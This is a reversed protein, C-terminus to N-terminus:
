DIVKCDFKFRTKIKGTDLPRDNITFNNVIQRYNTDLTMLYQLDGTKKLTIEEKIIWTEDSTFLFRPVKAEIVDDSAYKSRGTKPWYYFEYDPDSLFDEHVELIKYVPTGNYTKIKFDSMLMQQYPGKEIDYLKEVEKPSPEICSCKLRMTPISAKFAEETLDESQAFSAFPFFCLVAIFVSKIYSM